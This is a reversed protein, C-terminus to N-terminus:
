GSKSTSSRTAWGTLSASAKLKLLDAKREAFSPNPHALYAARQLALTDELEIRIADLPTASRLTSAPM